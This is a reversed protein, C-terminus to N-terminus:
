GGFSVGFRVGYTRPPYYSIFSNNGTSLGDSVTLGRQNDEDTVNKAFADILFRENASRWLLRLDTTSFSDEKHRDVNQVRYYVEDQWSYDGRITLSGLDGMM